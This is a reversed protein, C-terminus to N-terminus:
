QHVEFAKLTTGCKPTHEFSVRIRLADVYIGRWGCTQGVLAMVPSERPQQYIKASPVSPERQSIRKIDSRPTPGVDAGQSAHVGLCLPVEGSTELKSRHM